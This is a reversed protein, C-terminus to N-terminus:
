RDTASDAVIANRAQPLPLLKIVQAQSDQCVAEEAHFRTRVAVRHGTGSWNTLRHHRYNDHSIGHLHCMRRFDFHASDRDFLGEVSLGGLM